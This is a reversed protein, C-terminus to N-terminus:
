AVRQSFPLDTFMGASTCNARACALRSLDLMRMPVSGGHQLVIDLMVLIHSKQTSEDAIVHVSKGANRSQNEVCIPKTCAGKM